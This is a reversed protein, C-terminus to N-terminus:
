KTKILPGKSYLICKCTVPGAFLQGLHYMINGVHKLKTADYFNGKLWLLSIEVINNIHLKTHLM